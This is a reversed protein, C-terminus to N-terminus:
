AFWGGSFTMHAFRDACGGRAIVMRITACPWGVTGNVIDAPQAAVCACGENGVLPGTVPYTESIGVTGAAPHQSKLQISPDAASLNM